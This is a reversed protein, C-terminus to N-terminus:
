PNVSCMRRGRMSFFFDLEKKQTLFYSFLVSWIRTKWTRFLDKVLDRFDVRKDAIFFFTLKRRDWQWEAATIEMKLGRQLAKSRCLSLAKREEEMKTQLSEVEM